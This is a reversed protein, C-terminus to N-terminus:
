YLMNRHYIHLRCFFVVNQERVDIKRRKPPSYSVRADGSEDIRNKTLASEKRGTSLMQDVAAINDSKNEQVDDGFGLDFTGTEPVDGGARRISDVM